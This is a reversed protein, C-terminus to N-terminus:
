DESSETTSRLEESRSGTGGSIHQKIDGYISEYVEPNNIIYSTMNERGQFKEENYTYWAGGKKIIGLDVAFDIIEGYKNIGEGLIIDFEASRYPPAVKNKIIKAQTRQAVVVGDKDAISKIRAVDIRVSAYYGLAKGGPSTKSPGGFGVTSINSRYQNIFIVLTNSKHIAGSMRRCAQSMMRAQLGVHSDGSEGELEKLPVLAAVSDVVVIGFEGSRIGKEAITLGQEGFDPQSIYIKDIDVGIRKAYETDLAHEADIFLCELNLKQAEAIAHLACTTKGSSPNGLIEIVRGRPYGGVGLAMDLALSGSPVVMGEPLGADKESIRWISGSGYQKSVSKVFEDVSM